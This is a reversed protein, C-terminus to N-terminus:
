NFGDINASMEVRKSSTGRLSEKFIIIMNIQKLGACIGVNEITINLLDELTKSLIITSGDIKTSIM